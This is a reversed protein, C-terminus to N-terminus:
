QLEVFQQRVLPQSGKKSRQTSIQSWRIFGAKKGSWHEPYHKVLYAKATGGSGRLSPRAEAIIITTPSDIASPIKRVGAVIAFDSPEGSRSNSTHRPMASIAM